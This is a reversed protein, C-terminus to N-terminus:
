PEKEEKEPSKSTNKKRAMAGIKSPDPMDRTIVTHEAALHLGNNAKKEGVMEKYMEDELNSVIARESPQSMILVSNQQRIYKM